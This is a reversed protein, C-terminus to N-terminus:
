KATLKKNKIAILIGILSLMMMLVIKNIDLLDGTKPMVERMSKDLASDAIIFKSFHITKFIVNDGEVRTELAEFKNSSENYYFVSLNNRDLEKMEEDTLVITIEAQGENFGHIPTKSDGNVVSLNFVFIKKLGTINRTIDSNEEVNFDFVIKAGNVLLKDDIVSFPLRVINNEAVIEFSGKGDKVSQVDAIEVRVGSKFDPNNITIKNVGDKNTINSVINQSSTSNNNFGGVAEKSQSFLWSMMEKNNLTPVWSGHLLGGYLKLSNMYETSYITLKSKDNGLGQLKNYIDKSITSSNTGDEEAHFLWIPINSITNLESLDKVTGRSAIAVSAAFLNPKELLFRLTLGGGMSAGTLYIRNKDVKGETVLKNILEEYANFFNKMDKLETDTLEVSFKYPYQAAIVNTAYGSEAFAVAGRNATIPKFNDIGVEGSGHMWIVLPEPKGTNVTRLRYPITVGNSGKFTLNEFEDVTRTNVKTVNTQTFSLEPYKNCVVGFNSVNGGPYKFPKFSLKIKNGEVTLNIEDNTYNDQSVKGESNLPYGDYNGTIDFDTAQLDATKSMDNVDIEFSDVMVGMDGVYTNATIAQVSITETIISETAAKIRTSPLVFNTTAAIIALTTFIKKLNKNM